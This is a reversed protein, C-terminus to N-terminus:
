AKTVPFRHQCYSVNQLNTGFLRSISIDLVTRSCSILILQTKGTTLWTRVWIERKWLAKSSCQLNFKMIILCWSSQRLLPGHNLLKGATGSVTRTSRPALIMDHRNWSTANKRDSYQSWVWYINVQCHAVNIPLFIFRIHFSSGERNRIYVCM